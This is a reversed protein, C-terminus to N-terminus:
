YSVFNIHDGIKVQNEKVFGANVELVRDVPFKPQYIKEQDIEPVNQTLDVVVNQDIWIFDLAFRMNKMWFRYYDKKSFLFFMGKDKPLSTRNGLGQQWQEPNQALEVEIKKDAITITHTQKKYRPIVEPEKSRNKVLVTLAILTLFLFFLLLLKSM